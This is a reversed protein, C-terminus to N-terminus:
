EERWAAERQMVPLRARPHRLSPLCALLGKTYPHQAQQLDGAALMEVIRGSYM